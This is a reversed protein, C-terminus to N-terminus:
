SSPRRPTPGIPRISNVSIRAGIESEGDAPGIEACTLPECCGYRTPSWHRCAHVQRCDGVQRRSIAVTSSISRPRSTGANFNVNADVRKGVNWERLASSSRAAPRSTVRNAPAAERRCREARLSGRILGPMFPVRSTTSRVGAAVIMGVFASNVPLAFQGIDTRWIAEPGNSCVRARLESSTAM